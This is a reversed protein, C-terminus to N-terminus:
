AELLATRRHLGETDDTHVLRAGALDDRPASGDTPELVIYVRDSCDGTDPHELRVYWGDGADISFVAVVRYRGVGWGPHRQVFPVEDSLYLEDGIAYPAPISGAGWDSFPRRASM